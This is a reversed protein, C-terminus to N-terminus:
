LNLIWVFGGIFLCPYEHLLMRQPSPESVFDRFYTIIQTTPVFSSVNEWMQSDKRNIVFLDGVFVM